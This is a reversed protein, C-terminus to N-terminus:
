YLLYASVFNPFHGGASTNRAHHVNMFLFGFVWFYKLTGRLVLFVDSGLWMLTNMLRIEKKSLCTFFESWQQTILPCEMYRNLWNIQVWWHRTRNLEIRECVQDTGDYSFNPRCKLRLISPASVVMSLPCIPSATCRYWVFGKLVSCWYLHRIRLCCRRQRFSLCSTKFCPLGSAFVSSLGLIMSLTWRIHRALPIEWLQRAVTLVVHRSSLLRDCEMHKSVNEFLRWWYDRIPGIWFFVISTPKLTKTRVVLPTSTIPTANAPQCIGMAHWPALLNLTIIVISVFFAGYWVERSDSWCMGLGETVTSSMPMQKQKGQLQHFVAVFRDSVLHPYVLTLRGASSSVSPWRAGRHQKRPQWRAYYARQKEECSNVLSM